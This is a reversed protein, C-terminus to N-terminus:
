ASNGREQCLRRSVAAERVVGAPRNVKLYPLLNECCIKQMAEYKARMTEDKFNEEECGKVIFSVVNRREEAKYGDWGNTAHQLFYFAIKTNRKELDKEAILEEQHSKIIKTLDALNIKEEGDFQHNRNSTIIFSDEIDLSKGACLTMDTAFPIEFFVSLGESRQLLSTLFIATLQNTEASGLNETLLGEYLDKSETSLSETKGPSQM